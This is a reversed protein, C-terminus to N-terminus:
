IGIGLHMSNPLVLVNYQDITLVIRLNHSFRWDAINTGRGLGPEANMMNADVWMVQNMSDVGDHDQTPESVMQSSGLGSGALLVSTQM